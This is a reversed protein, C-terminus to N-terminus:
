STSFGAAEFGYDLGGAGTYISLLKPKRKMKLLECRPEMSIHWLFVWQDFTCHDSSRMERSLDSGLEGVGQEFSVPDWM